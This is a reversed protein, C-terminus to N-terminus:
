IAQDYKSFVERLELLCEKMAQHDYSNCEALISLIQPSRELMKFEEFDYILVKLLKVAWVDSSRSLACSNEKIPNEQEILEFTIDLEHDDSFIVSM